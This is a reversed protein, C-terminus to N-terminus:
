CIEVEELIEKPKRPRITRNKGEVYTIYGKEKLKELHYKITAPSKKDTFFCLERITPSYGNKRVFLEIKDYVLQQDESLKEM